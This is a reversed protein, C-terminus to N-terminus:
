HGALTQAQFAQQLQMQNFPVHLSFSMQRAMSIAIPAVLVMVAVVVLLKM